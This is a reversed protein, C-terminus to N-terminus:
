TWAINQLHCFLHSSMLICHKVHHFKLGGWPSWCIPIRWFLHNWEMLLKWPCKPNKSGTLPPTQGHLSCSFSFTLVPVRVRLACRVASILWVDCVAINVALSCLFIQSAINNTYTVSLLRSAGFLFNNPMDSPPSRPQPHHQKGPSRASRRGRRRKELREGGRGAWEWGERFEGPPSPARQECTTKHHCPLPQM